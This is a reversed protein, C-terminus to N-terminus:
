QPSAEEDTGFNINRINARKLQALLRDVTQYPVERDIQVSVLLEGSRQIKAALVGDLNELDILYDDVAVQGTRDIWVHTSRQRSSAVGSEARPLDVELGLELRFITSTLFFILLLFAIDAM